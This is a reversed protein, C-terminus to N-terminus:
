PRLMLETKSEAKLTQAVIGTFQFWGRLEWPDDCTLPTAESFYADREILEVISNWQSVCCCFGSELKTSIPERLAVSLPKFWRAHEERLAIVEQNLQKNDNEVNQLRRTVEELQLRSEALERNSRAAESHLRGADQVLDNIRRQLNIIERLLANNENRLEALTQQLAMREEDAELEM